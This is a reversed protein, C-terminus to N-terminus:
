AEEKKIIITPHTAVRGHAEVSCACTVFERLNVSLADAINDMAEAHQQIAGAINNLAEVIDTMNEM